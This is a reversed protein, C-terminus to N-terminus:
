VRRESLATKAGFFESGLPKYGKQFPWAGGLRKPNPNKSESKMKRKRTKNPSSFKKHPKLEYLIILIKERICMERQRRDIRNVDIDTQM